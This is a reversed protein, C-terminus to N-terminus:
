RTPTSAILANEPVNIRSAIGPVLPTKTVRESKVSGARTSPFRIPMVSM